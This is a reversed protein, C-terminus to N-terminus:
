EKDKVLSSATQAESLVREAELGDVGNSDSGPRTMRGREVRKLLVEHSEGTAKAFEKRNEVAEDESIYVLELPIGKAKNLPEAWEEDGEVCDIPVAIAPHWLGPHEGVSHWTSPAGGLTLRLAPVAGKKPTM